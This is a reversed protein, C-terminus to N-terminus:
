KYETPTVEYRAKFCKTFYAPSSFGTQYAVESISYRQQQLLLAAQKLRYNRLYEVPTIGTLEKIKRHLHGRSLGLTESLREVNYESDTYVQEIQEIFRRLFRDDISDMSTMDPITPENASTAAVPQTVQQEIQKLLQKRMRKREELLHILVLRVHDTHFPKQIYGDAGGAIGHLRQREESLATLLVVPIHSTSLTTKITRCLEFGNMAPMMVDSLVLSIEAGQELMELAQRGNSATRIEFQVALERALFQRVEDDDEVILLTYPYHQALLNRTESDDLQSAEYALPSEPLESIIGSTFHSKGKLLSLTFCTRVHPQSVITVDGHHLDMYSKVLHLGIGTGTSRDGTYFRDFLHVQQEAAIGTGNDEVSLCFRREEEQIRLTITGGEPTFKFANSLLNIVVKEMLNPDIWVFAETPESEFRYTIHRVAAMSKFYAHLEKTFPVLDTRRVKLKEQKNEVKRFDLLQNIVRLLREANKQILLLDQEYPSQRLLGVLRDLPALILTLPTRVEHSVNTFFQLKEATVEKIEANLAILKQRQEEEKRNKERLMRNNGRVKRYIYLTYCSLLIVGIMLFSTLWLLTQLSYYRGNLDQLRNMQTEIREKFQELRVAQLLLTEANNQRITATHLPIFKDVKQGEVLQMAARIVQEGGTPYLFSANIRGDYVADLGAGAVADVGIIPLLRGRVSDQQMFYERAAIAMMDNHAYVFDIEDPHSLTQLKRAADQPRWEGEIKVFTYHESNGLEDVFGQHREQAPSSLIDGWVELIRSGPQLITQAYRGAARGIEYNNAAIFTTYLDTNVKRDTIITPIGARYAEEAVATIPESQYPSIILVDVQQRILERIQKVQRENSYQADKVIIEVQDYNSAEIRVDNLMAQRWADDLTCQSLGIRVPREEGNPQCGCLLILILPLLQYLRHIM